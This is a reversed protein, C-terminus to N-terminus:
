FGQPPRGKPASASKPTIRNQLRCWELQPLPSARSPPTDTLFKNASVGGERALGSGCYIHTPKSIPDPKAGAVVRQLRGPMEGGLAKIM